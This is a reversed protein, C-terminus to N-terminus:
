LTMLALEKMRAKIKERDEISIPETDLTYQLANIRKICYKKLNVKNPM